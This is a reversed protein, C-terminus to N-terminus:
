LQKIEIFIELKIKWNITSNFEDNLNNLKLPKLDGIGLASLDRAIGRVGLCDGRNPTIEIEIIPDNIGLYNSVNDNLNISDPLEIIGEHDDSIELERESCLMGDSEVDRIIAKKLTM